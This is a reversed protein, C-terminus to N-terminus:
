TERIMSNRRPRGATTNQVTASVCAASQVNM